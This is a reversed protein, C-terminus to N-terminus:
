WETWFRKGERRSDLLTFIRIYLVIIKGTTRYPHSVQDTVNLTNSFLTILLINPGFLSSLPPQLFSCLSSSWLKYQEGLIILIILNLLILHASCTARNPPPLHICIYVPYPHSPWFSLSWESSLSTPPLIINFHIKCLPSSHVNYHVKPNWLIIPYEQTAACSTTEWPSQEM